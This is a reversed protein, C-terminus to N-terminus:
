VVKRRILVRGFHACLGIGKALESSQRTHLSLAREGGRLDGQVETSYERARDGGRRGELIERLMLSTVDCGRGGGSLKVFM